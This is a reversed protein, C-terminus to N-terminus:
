KLVSVETRGACQGTLATGLLFQGDGHRGDPLGIKTLLATLEDGRRPMPPFPIAQNM